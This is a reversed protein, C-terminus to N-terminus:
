WPEVLSLSTYTPIRNCRRVGPRGQAQRLTHLILTFGIEGGLYKQGYEKLKQAATQQAPSPTTM